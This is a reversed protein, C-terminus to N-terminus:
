RPVRCALADLLSSFDAVGLRCEWCLRLRVPGASAVTFHPPVLTCPEDWHRKASCRQCTSLAISAARILPVQGSRRLPMPVTWALQARTWGIHFVVGVGVAALEDRATSVLASWGPAGRFLPPFDTHRSLLFVPPSTPASPASRIPLTM